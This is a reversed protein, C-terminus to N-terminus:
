STAGVRQSVCFGKVRFLLRNRRGEFSSPFLHFSSFLLSPVPTPTYVFPSLSFPLFSPSPQSRSRFVFPPRSSPHYGEGVRQGPQNRRSSSASALSCFILRWGRRGGGGREREGGRRGGGGRWTDITACRCHEGRFSYSPQPPLSTPSPPFSRVFSRFCSSRDPQNSEGVVREGGRPSVTGCSSGREEGSALGVVRIRGGLSQSVKRRRRRRSARWEIERRTVFLRSLKDISIPPPPPPPPKGEMGYSFVGM